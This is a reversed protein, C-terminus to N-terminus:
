QPEAKRGRKKMFHPNKFKKRPRELERADICNNKELDYRRQRRGEIWEGTVPSQYGDIDGFTMPTTPVWESEPDVMPQRTDKDVMRGLERDYVYVTM